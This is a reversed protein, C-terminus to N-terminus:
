AQPEGQKVAEANWSESETNEEEEELRAFNRRLGACGPCFVPPDEAQFHYDCLDCVWTAPLYDEDKVKGAQEYRLEERWYDSFSQGPKHKLYYQQIVEQIVQPLQDADVGLRYSLGLHIQGAVGGGFFVDFPHKAAKWEEIKNMRNQEHSNSHLSRLLIRTFASIAPPVSAESTVSAASIVVENVGVESALTGGAVAANNIM